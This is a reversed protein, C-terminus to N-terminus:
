QQTKSFNIHYLLGAMVSTSQGVNRGAVTYGGWARALLNKVHPVHWLFSAGVKSYNMQNSAFPMDQRRIDGGGLTNQQTYYLEAHWKPQHYGARVIFDFLDYMQVQNSYYLQGNTYYSSRDLTINSRWTYAGSATFNWVKKLSYTSTFRGSLNKCGMGISLPLFDPTYNSAPMSYAGLVFLNLQGQNWEKKLFHYKAALTFDQLGQMSHLTGGSAKTWVYPLVAILTVRDKLGYVGMYTVSQTKITGINQNDRKLTGEWYNKWSDNGYFLGNGFNKKPIMIGDTIIPTQAIVGNFFLLAFVVVLLKKKM